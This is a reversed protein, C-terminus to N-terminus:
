SQAAQKFERLFRTPSLLAHMFLMGKAKHGRVTHGRAYFGLPLRLVICSQVGIEWLQDVSGMGAAYRRVFGAFRGEADGPLRCRLVDSRLRQESVQEARFVTRIKPALPYLCLFTDFETPVNTRDGSVIVNFSSVPLRGTLWAEMRNEEVPDM